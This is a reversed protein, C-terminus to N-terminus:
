EILKDVTKLVMERESEPDCNGIVFSSDSEDVNFFSVIRFDMFRKLHQKTLSFIADLDRNLFDDGHLDGLSVILDLIFIDRQCLKELYEIRADKNQAQNKDEQNNTM